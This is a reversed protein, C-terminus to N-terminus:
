LRQAAPGFAGALDAREAEAKAALEGIEDARAGIDIAGDALVADADLRIEGFRAIDLARHDEVEGLEIPKSRRLRARLDLGGERVPGVDLEIEIGAAVVGEGRGLAGTKVLRRGQ